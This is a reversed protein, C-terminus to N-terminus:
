FKWRIVGVLIVCGFGQMKDAIPANFERIFELFSFCKDVTKLEKSFSYGDILKDPIFGSRAVDLEAVYKTERETNIKSQTLVARCAAGNNVLKVHYFDYSTRDFWVVAM